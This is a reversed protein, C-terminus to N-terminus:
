ISRVTLIIPVTHISYTIWTMDATHLVPDTPSPWVGCQEQPILSPLSSQSSTSELSQDCTITDDDDYDHGLSNDCANAELTHGVRDSITNNTYSPLVEEEEESDSYYDELPHISSNTM